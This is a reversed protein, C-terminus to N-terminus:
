WGEGYKTCKGTGKVNKNVELCDSYQYNCKSVADDYKDGFHSSTRKEMESVEFYSPSRHQRGVSYGTGYSKGGTKGGTKCGEAYVGICDEYQAKCADACAGMCKSQTYSSCKESDSETYLKFINGSRWDSEINNCTLVPLGIGGAPSDVSYGYKQSEPQKCIGTTTPVPCSSTSKSTTTTSIKTSSAHATTCPYVSTSTTSPQSGIPPLVKFCSSKDCAKGKCSSGCYDAIDTCWEKFDFCDMVDPWGAHTFCSAVQLACSSSATLCSTNDSWEPLPTACWKGCSFECAPPIVTTTTCLPASTTTTESTSSSRVTSTITSKSSTSTACITSSTSETTPTNPKTSSTTTSTTSETCKSSSISSLSSSSSVSTPPSTTSIGLTTSSSVPPVYGCPQLSELDKAVYLTLRSPGGCTQSSNATCPMACESADVQTTANGVVVGCYCEQGYETGAFPFAGALCSQLCTETTMTDTGLNQQYFLARGSSSEDTWCGLPVYDDVTTENVPLFTTDQYVNIGTDGGCTESSNGACPFSCESNDVMAKDVTQGCYCSGYYALGAYRFNNGKCEAVCIEITMTDTDLDTKITLAEQEGPKGNDFCGVQVFPQFPELCSPLEDYWAQAHPLFALAAFALCNLATM